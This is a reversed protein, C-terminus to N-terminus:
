SVGAVEGAPDSFGRCELATIIPEVKSVITGLGDDFTGLQMMVYDEPHAAFATKDDKVADMFSRIAEGKSRFLQPASFAEVKRDYIAAIVYSSM